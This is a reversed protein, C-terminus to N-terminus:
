RPLASVRSHTSAVAADNVPRHPNSAAHAMVGSGHRGPLRARCVRARARASARKAPEARMPSKGIGHWLPKMPSEGGSVCIDRADMGSALYASGGVDRPNETLRAQCYARNRRTEVSVTGSFAAVQLCILMRTDAAASRAVGDCRSILSASPVSAHETPASSRRSCRTISM